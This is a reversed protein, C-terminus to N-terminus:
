SEGIKRDDTVIRCYNVDEGTKQRGGSIAFRSHGERIVGSEIESVKIQRNKEEPFGVKVWTWDNWKGKQDM